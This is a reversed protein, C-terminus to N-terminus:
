ALNVSVIFYENLPILLNRHRQVVSLDACVNQVPKLDTDYEMSIRYRASFHPPLDNM